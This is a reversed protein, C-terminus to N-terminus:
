HRLLLVVPHWGLIAISLIYAFVYAPLVFWGARVWTGLNKAQPFDGALAVGASSGFWTMSGGFGVAFALIGWDYGGQQLALKTLPINDFLASVMGLMGTSFPSPHPLGAIPILSAALVLTLLFSANKAAHPIKGWHPQRLRTGLLLGGWVGAAPMEWWVNAAVGGFLMMAVVMLRRKDVHVGDEPPDKTIREHRDQTKAAIIAYIFFALLSPLLARSLMAPSAGRLWMMTTTTDGIPSGAGGGNSAAVIAVLFAVSVRGRYVSKAIAGGIMAAAINDLFMSLVFISALLVFGGKWDDPLWKPLLEPLKSARFHDALLEFGVLLGLLNLLGGGEHRLHHLINTGANMRLLVILVLGGAAIKANQTHWIAIGILVGVFVIAEISV